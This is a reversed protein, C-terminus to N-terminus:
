YGRAQRDVRRKGEKWARWLNWLISSVIVGNLLVLGWAGLAVSWWVFLSAGIGSYLSGRLVDKRGYYFYGVLICLAGTWQLVDLLM